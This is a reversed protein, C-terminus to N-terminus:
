CVQASTKMEEFVSKKDVPNKPPSKKDFHLQVEQLIDAPLEAMVAPDLQSLSLDDYHTSSAATSPGPEPEKVQIHKFTKHHLHLNNKDAQRVCPVKRKM